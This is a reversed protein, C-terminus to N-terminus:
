IDYSLKKIYTKINSLEYCVNIHISKKLTIIIFDLNICILIKCVNTLSIKM